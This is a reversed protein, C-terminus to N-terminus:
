LSHCVLTVRVQGASSKKKWGGSMKPDTVSKESHRGEKPQDTMTLLQLRRQSRLSDLFNLRLDLLPCPAKSPKNRQIAPTLFFSLLSLPWPVSNCRRIHPPYTVDAQNLGLMKHDKQEISQRILQTPNLM